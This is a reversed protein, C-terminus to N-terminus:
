AAVELMERQQTLPIRRSTLLDRLSRPRDQGYAVPFRYTYRLIDVEPEMNPHLLSSLNIKAQDPYKMTLRGVSWHATRLLLLTAVNFFLYDLTGM